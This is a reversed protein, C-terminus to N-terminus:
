QPAVGYDRVFERDMSDCRASIAKKEDISAYKSSLGDWCSAIAGRRSEKEAADAMNGATAGSLLLLVALVGLAYLWGSLVKSSVGTEVVQARFTWLYWLWYAFLPVLLARLYKAIRLWDYEAPDLGYTNFAGSLCIVSIAPVWLLTAFIGIKKARIVLSM